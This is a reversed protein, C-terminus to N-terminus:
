HLQVDGQGFLAPGHRHVHQCLPATDQRLDQVASVSYDDTFKSLNLRVAGVAACVANTGKKCGGVLLLRFWIFPSGDACPCPPQATSHIIYLGVRVHIGFFDAQVAERSEALGRHPGAGLICSKGDCERSLGTAPAGNQDAAPKALCDFGDVAPKGVPEASIEFFVIVIDIGQRYVPV